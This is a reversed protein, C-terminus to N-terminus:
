SWSRISSHQTCTMRGPPLATEKQWKLVRTRLPLNYQVRNLHCTRADNLGYGCACAHMPMAENLRLADALM